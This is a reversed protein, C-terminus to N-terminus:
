RGRVRKGVRCDSKGGGKKKYGQKKEKKWIVCGLLIISMEM